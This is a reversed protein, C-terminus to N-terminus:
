QKTGKHYHIETTTRDRIVICHGGDDTTHKGTPLDILRIAEGKDNIVMVPVDNAKMIAKGRM